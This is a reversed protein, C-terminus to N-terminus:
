SKAIIKLLAEIQKDKESLQKDKEDLQAKLVSISEDINKSGGHASVLEEFDARLERSDPTGLFQAPTLCLSKCLQPVYKISLSKNEVGKKLGDLTINVEKAITTMPVRMQEARLRLDSWNM